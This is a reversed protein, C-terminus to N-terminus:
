RTAVPGTHGQTAKKGAARSSQPKKTGLAAAQNEAKKVTVVAQKKPQKAKKPKSAPKPTPKPTKAPTPPAIVRRSILKEVKSNNDVEAESVMRSTARPPLHLTVGSNCRLLVPRNTLNRITVPM